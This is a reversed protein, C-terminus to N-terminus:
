RQGKKTLWTLSRLMQTPIEMIQGASSNYKGWNLGKRKSRNEVVRFYGWKDDYGLLRARFTPSLNTSARKGIMTDIDQVTDIRPTIGRRGM